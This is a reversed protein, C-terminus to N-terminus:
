VSCLFENYFLLKFTVAWLSYYGACDVNNVEVTADPFHLVAM